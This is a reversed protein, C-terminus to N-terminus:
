NLRDYYARVEELDEGKWTQCSYFFFFINGRM